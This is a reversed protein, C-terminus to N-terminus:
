KKTKHRLLTTGLSSHLWLKWSNATNAVNRDPHLKLAMKRYASKVKHPEAGYELKLIRYAEQEEVIVCVDLDKFIITCIGVYIICM